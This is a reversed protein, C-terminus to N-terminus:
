LIVGGKLYNEVAIKEKETAISSSFRVELCKTYGTIVRKGNRDKSGLKVYERSPKGMITGIGKRDEPYSKKRKIVYFPQLHGLFGSNAEPSGVQSTTNALMGAALAGAAKTVGGTAGHVMSGGIGGIETADAIHKSRTQYRIEELEPSTLRFGAM